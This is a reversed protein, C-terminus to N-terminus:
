KKEEEVPKEGKGKFRYEWLTLEVGLGKWVGIKGSRESAPNAANYAEIESACGALMAISLVIIAFKM